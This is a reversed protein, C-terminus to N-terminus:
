YILAYANYKSQPTIPTLPLYGKEIRGNSVTLPHERKLAEHETQLEQHSTHYVIRYIGNKGECVYRDYFLRAVMGMNM